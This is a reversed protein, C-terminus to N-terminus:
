HRIIQPSESAIISADSPLPLLYLNDNASLSSRLSWLLDIVQLGM